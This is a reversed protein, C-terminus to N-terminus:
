FTRFGHVVGEEAAGCPGEVAGTVQAVDGVEAGVTGDPGVAGGDEGKAVVYKGRLRAEGGGEVLGGRSRGRGRLLHLFTKKYM